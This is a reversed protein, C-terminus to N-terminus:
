AARRPSFLSRLGGSQKTVQIPKVQFLQQMMYDIARSVQANPHSLLYPVGRNLAFTVLSPDDPISALLPQGLQKQCIEESVGGKLGARNLVVHARAQVHSEDDLTQLLVIASRLSIVDPGTVVLIDDALTLVESLIPDTIAATDVVVYAASAALLQLIHRWMEPTLEVVQALDPPAVLVRVESQHRQLYGAIVDADITAEGALTALTHRPLLNLM